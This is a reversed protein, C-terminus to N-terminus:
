LLSLHTGLRQGPKQHKAPLWPREKVVVIDRWDRGANKCLTMGTGMDRQGFKGMVLGKLNPGM